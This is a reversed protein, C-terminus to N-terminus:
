LFLMIQQAPDLLHLITTEAPLEEEQWVEEVDGVNIDEEIEENNM